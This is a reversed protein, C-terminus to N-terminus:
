GTLDARIQLLDFARARHDPLIADARPAHRFAQAVAPPPLELFAMAFDTEFVNAHVSQQLVFEANIRFIGM